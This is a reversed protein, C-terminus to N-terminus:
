VILGEREMVARVEEFAAAINGTPFRIQGLGQINSFEECGEELLVIARGFGLRGQFLGVEHIVNMRARRSGDAQEDEATMVILAFAAADLMESLRAINTMGAVPVHNFEDYPLRLREVVFDKLERWLPSRGHGIFVNTGVREAKRERRSKRELHSGAKRVVSAVISASKAPLLLASAKAFVEQHPAVKLGATVALSDRSMIQGSPLLASAIAHEDDLRAKKLEEKLSTLFPDDDALSLESAVESEADKVKERLVISDKRASDVDTIEARRFLEDKVDDPDFEEWEGVTSSSVILDLLGWESSFAAGPPRRQLGDYYICAHYGLNSGSWSHQLEGAVVMLRELTEGHRGRFVDAQGELDDAIALLESVCISWIDAGFYSGIAGHFPAARSRFM